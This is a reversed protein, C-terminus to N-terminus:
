WGRKQKEYESVIMMYCHRRADNHKEINDDDDLWDWSESDTTVVKIQKGRYNAVIQYHGYSSMKEMGFNVKRFNGTKM